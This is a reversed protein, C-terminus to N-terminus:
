IFTKTYYKFGHVLQLVRIMGASVSLFSGLKHDHM